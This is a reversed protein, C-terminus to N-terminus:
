IITRKQVKLGSYFVNMCRHPKFENSYRMGKINKLKAAAFCAKVALQQNLPLKSIVEDIVKEDCQSCKNKLYTIKEYLKKIKFLM